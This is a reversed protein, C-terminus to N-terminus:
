VETATLLLADTLRQVDELPISIFQGAQRMTIRQRDGFQQRRLRIPPTTETSILDPASLHM